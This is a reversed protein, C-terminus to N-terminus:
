KGAETRRLQDRFEVLRPCRYSALRERCLGILDEALMDSPEVDSTTVVIAMVSEGWEEDPIGIVAADHGITGPVALGGVPRRNHRTTSRVGM